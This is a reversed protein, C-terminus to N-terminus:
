SADEGGGADGAPAGPSPAAKIWRPPMEAVHVVPVNLWVTGYEGRWEQQLRAADATQLLRLRGTPRAEHGVCAIAALVDTRREPPADSGIM